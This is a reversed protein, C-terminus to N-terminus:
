LMAPMTEDLARIAHRITLHGYSAERGGPYAIWTPEDGRACDECNDGHPASWSVLGLHFGARRVAYIAVLVRGGDATKTLTRVEWRKSGSM